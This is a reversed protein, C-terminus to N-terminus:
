FKFYDMGYVLMGGLHGAIALLVVTLGLAARYIWVKATSAGAFKWQLLTTIVALAAAAISIAAHRELLAGLEGPYAAVPAALWGLFAAAVAGLAGLPLAFRAGTGFFERGTVIVLLEGLFAAVILAIPFHVAVPHYKGLFVLLRNRAKPDTAYGDGNEAPQEDAVESTSSAQSLNELYKLPDKMFLNKCMRCCFYVTQGNYDYSVELVAKREPLVPCYENMKAPASAEAAAGALGVVALITAVILVTATQKM